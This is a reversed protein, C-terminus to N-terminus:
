LVTHAKQRMVQKPGVATATATTVQSALTAITALTTIPTELSANASAVAGGAVTTSVSGTVTGLNSVGSVCVCRDSVM